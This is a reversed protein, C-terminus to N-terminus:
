FSYTFHYMMKYSRNQLWPNGLQNNVTDDIYFSDWTPTAVTLVTVTYQKIM